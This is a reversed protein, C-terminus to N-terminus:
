CKMPPISCDFNQAGEDGKVRPAFNDIIPERKDIVSFLDLLNSDEGGWSLGVDLALNMADLAGKSYGEVGEVSTEVM